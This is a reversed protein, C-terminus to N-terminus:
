MGCGIWTGQCGFALYVVTALDKKTPTHQMQGAYCEPCSFSTWSWQYGVNKGTCAASWVQPFQLVGSNPYLLHHFHLQPPPVELCIKKQQLWAYQATFSPTLCVIVGAFRCNNLFKSAKGQCCQTLMRRLQRQTGWKVRADSCAPRLASFMVYVFKKICAFLCAM